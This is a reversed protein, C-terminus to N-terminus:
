VITISQTNTSGNDNYIARVTWTGANYSRVDVQSPAWNAGVRNMYTVSTISVLQGFNVNLYEGASPAGFIGYTGTTAFFYVVGSGARLSSATTMAVTASVAGGDSARVGTMQFGGMHWEYGANGNRTATRQMLRWQTGYKGNGYIIQQPKHLVSHLGGPITM